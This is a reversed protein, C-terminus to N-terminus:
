AGEPCEGREEIDLEELASRMCAYYPDDVGGNQAKFEDLTELLAAAGTLPKPPRAAEAEARAKAEAEARTRRLEARHSDPYATQLSDIINELMRDKVRPMARKKADDSPFAARDDTMHLLDAFRASLDEASLFGVAYDRICQVFLEFREPVNDAHFISYCAVCADRVLQASLADVTVPFDLELMAVPLHTEVDAKFEYFTRNDMAEYDIEPLFKLYNKLALPCVAKLKNVVTERADLSLAFLDGRVRSIEEFSPERDESKSYDLGEIAKVAPEAATKKKKKGGRRTKKKEGSSADPAAGGVEGGQAALSAAFEAHRQVLAEDVATELEARPAGGLTQGLSAAPAAGGDEGGEALSCVDEAYLMAAEAIEKLEEPTFEFRSMEGLGRHAKKSIDMALEAVRVAGAWANDCDINLQGAEMTYDLAKEYSGAELLTRACCVLGEFAFEQVSRIVPLGFDEPLEPYKKKFEAVEKVAREVNQQALEVSSALEVFTLPKKGGAEEWIAKVRQCSEALEDSMTYMIEADNMIFLSRPPSSVVEALVVLSEM